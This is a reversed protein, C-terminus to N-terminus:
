KGSWDNLLVLGFIHEDANDIFITDGLTTPQGIIAAVELEYDLQRTPGYVVEQGQQFQGKPRIIPTGSVQLIRYNSVHNSAM